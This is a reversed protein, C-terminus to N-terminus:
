SDNRYRKFFWIKLYDASLIYLAVITLILALYSWPLPTFGLEGALPSYPIALTLILAVLSIWFLHKGPKSKLFNRRTRIVFLILLETLISEIFWGTQFASAKLKLVYFLTLFTTLDFLTSHLGFIVMYRRIHKLNWKGPKRVQEPDVHDASVALFPFDTLFNTLLIQKPLMPLFPLMLAAAAMSFMNGFTSGTNIYMYKLTNAFTKRGEHIGNVVATLDNETLVFDAAERAVDVANDVSIGVDAAHIAAVDNIGDGMYAVSFNQKLAEIIQEKQHPEVEAFVDVSKAKDAWATQPLRFLDQGSCVVPDELGIQRAISYAINSNDGTIIKLGVQLHNLKQLAGPITPKIPDHLLVFGAFIMQAETQKDITEDSLNKFCVAIARLGQAGYQAFQEMLEARHTEIPLLQTDWQVQTCIELINHFAGKCILFKENNKELGISLRKRNFDYPVEGIKRVEQTPVVALDRLAADITNTYGSEFYANYYALEAVWSDEQGQANVIKAVTITGQTITGTKDTCLLNVEGLNQIANLKKVIVKQELLKQAGASMAITNIAPLLEPAMGVALALSFMASAMIGTHNLLNVVLVFCSLVLTIKMLFYGFEKIGREFSTEIEVSAREKLQGMITDEGTRIVLARARGSLLHTGEWLCNTRHSLVTDEAVSGLDKKVPYSEGTLSMENVLVENAEIILCDAPVIAGAQLVLVDGPVIEDTPLETPQGQRLVTSKTAILKQLQEVVKGAKREQFFSLLGTSLVIFLIIVVDSHDGLFASLVVAGLLLLMLPNKFQRGFLLVDKEFRTASRKQPQRLSKIQKAQANSLGESSSNLAAMGDAIDWTWFPVNSKEVHLLCFRNM